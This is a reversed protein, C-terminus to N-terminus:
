LRISVQPSRRGFRHLIYILKKNFELTIRASVLFSWNLRLAFATAQQWWIAGLLGPFLRHAFAPLCCLYPFKILWVNPILHCTWCFYPSMILHFSSCRHPNWLCCTASSNLSCPPDFPSRAAHTNNACLVKTFFILVCPRKMNWSLGNTRGILKQRPLQVGGTMRKDWAIDTLKWMLVASFFYLNHFWPHRPLKINWELKENELTIVPLRHWISDWLSNM